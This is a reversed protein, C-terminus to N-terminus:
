GGFMGGVPNIIGSVLSLWNPSGGQKTYYGRTQTGLAPGLFQTVWPNNWPQAQEWQFYDAWLEDQEIGRRVDGVALGLQIPRMEEQASMSVAGQQRQLASEMARESAVQGALGLQARQGSMDIALRRGSEGLASALAGSPGASGFSHEIEPIVDAKYWEMTPAEVGEKFWKMYTEPGTEYPVQGSLASAIASRRAASEPSQGFMEALEFARTQLPDIGAVLRGGYPTIGQGLQQTVMNIINDLLGQQQSTLLPYSKLKTGGSSGSM